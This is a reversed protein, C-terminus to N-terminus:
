AFQFYLRPRDHPLLKPHLLLLRDHPLLKPHPLLGVDISKESERARPRLIEKHDM